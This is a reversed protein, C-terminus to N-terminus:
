AIFNGLNSVFTTKFSTTAEVGKIGIMASLILVPRLLSEFM